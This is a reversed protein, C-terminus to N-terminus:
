VAGGKAKGEPRCQTFYPFHGSLENEGEEQWEGEEEGAASLFLWSRRRLSGILDADDIDSFVDAVGVEVGDVLTELFRRLFEAKLEGM